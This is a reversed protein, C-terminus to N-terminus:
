RAKCPKEPTWSWSSDPASLRVPVRHAKRDDSWCIADAELRGEATWRPSEIETCQFARDCRGTPGKAELRGDAFYIRWEQGDVGDPQVIALYRRQDATYIVSYGAGLVVGTRDNLMLGDVEDENYRYILHMKTAPDYGCYFHRVGEEAGIGYPAVDVFSRVGRSWTVDLRHPSPRTAGHPATALTVKEDLPKQTQLASCDLPQQALCVPAFVLACILAYCPTM